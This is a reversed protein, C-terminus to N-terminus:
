KKESVLLYAGPIKAWEYPFIPLVFSKGSKKRKLTGADRKTRHWSVTYGSEEFAKNVAAMTHYCITAQGNRERSGPCWPDDKPADKGWSAVQCNAYIGESKRILDVVYMKGKSGPVAFSIPAGSRDRGIIM